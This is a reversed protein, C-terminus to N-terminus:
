TSRSHLKESSSDQRKRSANPVPSERKHHMQEAVTDRTQLFPFYRFGLFLEYCRRLRSNWLWRIDNVGLQSGLQARHQISNPLHALGRSRDHFQQLSKQRVFCVCFALRAWKSSALRSSPWVRRTVSGDRLFANRFHNEPTFFGRAM